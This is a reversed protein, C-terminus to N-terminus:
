RVCGIYGKDLLGLSDIEARRFDLSARAGPIDKSRSKSWYKGRRFGKASICNDFKRGVRNHGYMKARLGCSQTVRKLENLTPLRGGVRRCITEARKLSGLCGCTYSKGLHCTGKGYRDCAEPSLNMWGAGAFTNIMGLAMVIYLVIKM